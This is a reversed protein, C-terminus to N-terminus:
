GAVCIFMKINHEREEPGSEDDLVPAFACESQSEILREHHKRLGMREAQIL